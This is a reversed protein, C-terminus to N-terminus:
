LKQRTKITLDGNQLAETQLFQHEITQGSVINRRLEARFSPRNV